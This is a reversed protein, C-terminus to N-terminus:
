ELEHEGPDLDQLRFFGHCSDCLATVEMVDLVQIQGYWSSM